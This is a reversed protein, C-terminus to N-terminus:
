LLIMGMVEYSACCANWYHYMMGADRMFVFHHKLNRRKTPPIAAKRAPRSPTL